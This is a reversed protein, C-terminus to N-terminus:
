LVQRLNIMRAIYSSRRSEALGIRGQNEQSMDLMM